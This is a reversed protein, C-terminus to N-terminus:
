SGRVVALARNLGSLHSRFVALDGVDPVPTRPLTFRPSHLAVAGPVQTFACVYGAERLAEQDSERFDELQGNPYGFCWCAQGTEAEIRERSSLVETYAHELSVASLIQHNATHSGITMGAQALQRVQDWSMARYLDPNLAACNSVDFRTELAALLEVQRAHALRKFQARLRQPSGLDLSADIERLTRQIDPFGATNLVQDLRDFWFAAREDGILNTTV